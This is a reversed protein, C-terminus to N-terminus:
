QIQEALDKTMESTQVSMSYGVVTEYVKCANPDNEACWTSLTNQIGQLEDCEDLKKQQYCQDAASRALSIATGYDRSQAQRTQAEQHVKASSGCGIITMSIFLTSFGWFLRYHLFSM